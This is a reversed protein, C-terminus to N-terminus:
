VGGASVSATDNELHESTRNYTHNGEFVSSIAGGAAENNNSIAQNGIFEGSINQIHGFNKITGGHASATTEVRNNAFTGAITGILVDKGIYFVAAEAFNPNTYFANNVNINIFNIPNAEPTILTDSTLAFIRQGKNQEPSNITHNNGNITVGPTTVYLQKNAIIDETLSITKDANDPNTIAATLEDWSSVEITDAAYANAATIISASLVIYINKKVKLAYRM